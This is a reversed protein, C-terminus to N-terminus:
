ISREKVIKIDDNARFASTETRPRLPPSFAQLNMALAAAPDLSPSSEGTDDIRKSEALNHLKKM